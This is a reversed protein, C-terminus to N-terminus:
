ARGPTDLARWLYWSAVSRWPRWPAALRELRARSPEGRLGYLRKASLRIAFDGIPWVDPRGLHFMLFMHATWPGIGTVATLREVVDDDAITEDIPLALRGDGTALALDKLARTKAASLGVARLATADMEAVAGASPTEPFLGLFRAHITAAVKGALQQYVISQALAGFHDPGRDAGLGYPGVREILAGLRPDVRTLHAVGERAARADIGTPRAWPM